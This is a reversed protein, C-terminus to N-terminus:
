KSSKKRFDIYNKRAGYYNFTLKRNEQILNKEDGNLFNCFYGFLAM